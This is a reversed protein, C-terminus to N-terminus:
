SAAMPRRRVGAVPLDHEDVIDGVIEELIDELTVVGKLRATNTSWSPSISAGPASAHLQDLLSTRTPFSGPRGRTRRHRARGARRRYGAGRAAADKAHLVGIINDPHGHCLPM